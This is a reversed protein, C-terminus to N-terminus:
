LQMKKLCIVVTQKNSIKERLFSEIRDINESFIPVDRVDFKDIEIDKLSINNLNMYYINQPSSISELSHM